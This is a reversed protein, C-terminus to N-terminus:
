IALRRQTAPDPHNAALKQGASARHAPQGAPELEHYVEPVAVVFDHGALIAATHRIAAIVQFIELLAGAGPVPRDARTSARLNAHFRGADSGTM